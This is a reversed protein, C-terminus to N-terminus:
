KTSHRNLIISLDTKRLMENMEDLKKQVIEDRVLQRPAENSQRVVNCNPNKGLFDSVICLVM